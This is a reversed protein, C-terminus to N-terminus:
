FLGFHSRCFWIRVLRIPFFQDPRFWISPQFFYISPQFSVKAFSTVPLSQFVSQSEAGRWGDWPPTWEPNSCGLKTWLFAGWDKRSWWIKLRLIQINLWSLVGYQWLKHKIGPAQLSKINVQNTLMKWKTKKRGTGRYTWFRWVTRIWVINLYSNVHKSHQGNEHRSEEEWRRYCLPIHCGSGSAPCRAISSRSLPPIISFSNISTLLFVFSGFSRSNLFISTYM